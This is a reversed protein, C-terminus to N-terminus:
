VLFGDGFFSAEGYIDINECRIREDVGGLRATFDIQWTDAPTIIQTQESAGNYEMLFSRTLVNGQQGTATKIKKQMPAHVIMAVVNNAKNVLGVWNFEFDGVDAGMVVSYVVANNNVMGTKGVAQRHVIMAEEPLGEGRDIPSTIDLNPINAFVFEDLIVVGGNAAEQAKLQEFASTIVTQSM